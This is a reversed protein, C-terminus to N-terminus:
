IKLNLTQERDITVALPFTFIGDAMSHPVALNDLEVSLSENNAIFPLKLTQLTLSGYLVKLEIHNAQREITGWASGVSWFFNFNGDSEIPNFGITREAMHYEFGSYTLLLAYSAMSRAYNSGCEFENWPNRREGDYRDRIAKVVEMGEEVLGEQIM